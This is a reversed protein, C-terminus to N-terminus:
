GELAALLQAEQALSQEWEDELAARDPVTPDPNAEVASWIENVTAVLEAGLPNPRGDVPGLRETLVDAM